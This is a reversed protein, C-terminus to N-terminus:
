RPSAPSPTLRARLAELADPFARGRGLHYEIWASLSRTEGLSLARELADLAGVRNGGAHLSQSLGLWAPSLAPDAELASRYAAAAGEPSPELRALCLRAIAALFPDERHAAVARLEVEAEARHGRAELVRGLRLRAEASAPDIELADRYQRALVELLLRRYPATTRPNALKYALEYPSEGGPEVLQWVDRDSVVTAGFGDPIVSFELATARALLAAPDAPRLRLAAAYLGFARAHDAYAQHLSGAALLWDLTFATAQRSVLPRTADILEDARDGHLAGFLLSAADLNLVAAAECVEGSRCWDRPLPAGSGLAVALDRAAGNDGSRYRAVLRRYADDPGTEESTAGGVVLCVILAPLVGAVRRARRGAM